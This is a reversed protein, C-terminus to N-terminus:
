RARVASSCARRSPRPSSSRAASTSRSWATGSTPPHEAAPAREITGANNVLIDVRRGRLEDALALVAARHSFDCAFSSFTRGHAAVALAVASDADAERTSVAIIDAGAGALADAMALGIGRSAGTVLATRGALDFLSATM